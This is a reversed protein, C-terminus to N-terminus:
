QKNIKEFYEDVEKKYYPSLAPPVTKLLEIQKEKTKFYQQLAPPATKKKVKAQEAKREEEEGRERMAKESELLRTEIEKQRLQNIRELKKNVLDEEIDEMQKGLEGLQKSLQEKANKDQQGAMKELQRLAERIRQQEAALKALEESLQRGTKGSQKLDQIKQNLQQQLQGLSPSKQPKGKQKSKSPMSMANQMANQMQQLVESLMLALNNMSTMAGQQKGTAQSLKRQKIMESSENMFKKMDGLERTVFSQIQFVRKALANLSDEIIKADDKLKLQQQALKIYRPDSISIPRFEKMLNEQDFSLTVLNELIARLDDMNEQMEEMEMESEMQEMQQAMKQMKQGANKQSKSAKKNQKKELEELSKDQEQDIEQQEEKNEENKEDMGNPNELNKDMEELEKMDKKLEEFKENLEKQEEQLTENDKSKNETEESLKEQEKALEKLDEVTKELKEEFQYQKFMELARELEKELNAEKDKIEELKDKVSENDRNQELLKQLEEYLKKTEEDLLENMLKQLQEMKEAIKESNESFREQKENLQKNQEQLKKLDEVLEERKKLIEEAMKKDQYELRDKQQLKNELSKIDNQLDQAKKLTKDIQSQTNTVSQDLEQKLEKETPIKFQSTGTKSSKAGNVGDNDWVIGYYEVNDGPQLKLESLDLQYYFNQITQDASFPINITKWEGGKGDRNVRYNLKLASLGYDDSISGGVSLFNYVASDQYDQMSIKPFRDPIVNIFYNIEEKNASYKNLLRVQYGESARATKAYEFLSANASNVNITDKGENFILFLKDAKNANFQWNIRTGEPVALNGINNWKENPKGLYTPYNLSANFSLLTPREILEIQYDKSNFGAAEFSFDVDKQLKPFIYTFKGNEDKPMKYRRGGSLLFVDSPIARGDLRLSLSFDENKFAQMKKNELVFQFPAPEAFSENFKIIRESSKTFLETFLNPALVFIFLLLLLPILVWRLYKRNEGLNIADTFRVISLEQTRQQISAMILSNEREGVRQLQITNLLKDDINPFYHGIQRAAEEDSIQRNLNFLKLIPSIVWVVMVTALVVVFSFFFVGRVLTNFRGLYELFNLSIYVSLVLALSILAGKLLQNTYYKQKYKKLEDNLSISAM